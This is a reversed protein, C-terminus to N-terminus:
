ALCVNPALFAPLFNPFVLLPWLAISSLVSGVRSLGHLQDFHGAHTVAWIVGVVLYPTLAMIALGILEAVTFEYSLLRRLQALMGM